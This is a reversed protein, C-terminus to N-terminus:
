GHMVTRAILAVAVAGIALAAFAVRLRIALARVTEREEPSANGM